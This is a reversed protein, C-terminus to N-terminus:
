ASPRPRVVVGVLFSEFSNGYVWLQDFLTNKKLVSEVHEVAM